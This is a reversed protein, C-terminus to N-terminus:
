KLFVSPYPLKNRKKAVLYIVFLLILIALYSIFIDSIELPGSMSWHSFLYDGSFYFYLKEILGINLILLFIATFLRSIRLRRVFLLVGILPPLYIKLYITATYPDTKPFLAYWEYPNQGYWAVLIEGAYFFLVFLCCWAMLTNFVYLLNFSATKYKGKFVTVGILFLIAAFSFLQM